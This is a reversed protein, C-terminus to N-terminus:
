PEGLFMGALSTAQDAEEKSEEAERIAAAQLVYDFM